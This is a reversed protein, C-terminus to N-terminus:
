RCHQPAGLLYNKCLKPDDLRRPPRRLLEPARFALKQWHVENILSLCRTQDLDTPAGRAGM